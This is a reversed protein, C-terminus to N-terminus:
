ATLFKPLPIGYERCLDVFDEREGEHDEKWNGAKETDAIFATLAEKDYLEVVNEWDLIPPPSGDANRWYIFDPGM